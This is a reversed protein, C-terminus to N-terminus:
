EDPIDHPKRIDRSLKYYVVTSDACVIATYLTDPDFEDSQGPKDDGQGQAQQAGTEEEEGVAALGHGHGEDENAGRM